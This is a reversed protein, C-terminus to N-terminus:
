KESKAKFFFEYAVAGAGLVLLGAVAHKWNGLLDFALFWILVAVFVGPVVPYFPVRFPREVDPLRKRFIFVTAGVLGLGMYDVFVVYNILDGFTKWFLLLVVTWALQILIANAPTRWRPHIEAIKSFFVGDRAMAFYIRPATLTYVVCSGFTSLAIVLAMMKKGFPVVAGAADAGVTASKAIADPPLIRLYALNCLLYAATVILAGGIMARPITRQPDATEGALFSAHHWGGYSWLAGVLGVAFATSLNEPAQLFAPDAPPAVGNKTLFFGAFVLFAIGALKLVSFFSGFIEGLKSGFINLFSVFVLMGVAWFPYVSPEGLDILQDVHEVCVLGLAALAGCTSVLLIYWGFLFAVRQGFAKKLYVYMGGAGPFMGGLEAFTLAGTLAVLGGVLWVALVLPETRVAEVIGGPTRFIGSGISGGVAVMTLGFLTLNKKLESM